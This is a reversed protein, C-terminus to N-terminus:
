SIIEYIVESQKIKNWAELASLVISLVTIIGSIIVLLTEM